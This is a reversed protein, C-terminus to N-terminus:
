QSDARELPYPELQVRRNMARGDESEGNDLPWGTSEGSPGRLRAAPVGHDRLWDFVIKARRLSLRRCERPSCESEDAFGMVEAGIGPNEKLALLSGLHADMREQNLVEDMDASSESQLPRGPPFCLRRFELTHAGVRHILLFASVILLAFTFVCANRRM